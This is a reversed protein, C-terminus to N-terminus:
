GYRFLGRGHRRLWARGAITHETLQAVTRWFEPGHGPHTLHALEHAVVYDLVEPPALILRWSFSLAGASSCSGWRSRTDRIAIRAPERGSKGVKARIHDTLVRRAEGRLWAEIHRSVDEARGGVVLLKGTDSVGARNEGIHRVLRQRGHVPLVAGNTFPVREPLAELRGRIWDAHQRAMALADELPARAPVVAIINEGDASLRISVRRARPHRRVLLTTETPGLQIALRNSATSAQRSRRPGATL